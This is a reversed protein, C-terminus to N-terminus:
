KGTRKKRRRRKRPTGKRKGCGPCEWGLGEQDMKTKCGPCKM